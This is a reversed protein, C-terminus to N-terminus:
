RPLERLEAVPVATDGVFHLLWKAPATGPLVYGEFRDLTPVGVRLRNRPGSSNATMAARGILEGDASAIWLTTTRFSGAIAEPLAGAIAGAESERTFAVVTASSNAPISVRRDINGGYGAKGKARLVDAARYTAAIDGDAIGRVMTDDRLHLALGTTAAEVIRYNVAAWGSYSISRPMALFSAAMVLAAVAFPRWATALSPKTLAYLGMGLWAACSWFLYRDAFLQSPYMLFYETRNAAIIFNATAGFVFLGIAVCALRSLTRKARWDFFMSTVGAILMLCGCMVGLTARLTDDMSRMMLAEYLPAGMRAIFFYLTMGPSFYHSTARVGESGPLVWFYIAFTGLAICVITALLVPRKRQLLAVMFLAAFTAIGPGFSFTAFVCALLAGIWLRVRNHSHADAHMCWVGIMLASVLYFLGVTEFPHTFMRANANWWLLTFILCVAVAALIRPLARVADWLLMATVLVAAGWATAVQLWPSGDFWLLELHRVIGPFVPRHGNQLDLVSQPFPVLLYHTMLRFEDQFPHRLTSAFLNSFTIALQVAAM